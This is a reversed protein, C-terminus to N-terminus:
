SSGICLFGCQEGTKREYFSIFIPSEGRARNTVVEVGLSDRRRSLDACFEECTRFCGFM